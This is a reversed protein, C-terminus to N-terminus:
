KNIFKAYMGMVFVFILLGVYIHKVNVLSVRIFTLIEDWKISICM